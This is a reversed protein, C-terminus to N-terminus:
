DISPKQIRLEVDTATTGPNGLSDQNLSSPTLADVVISVWLLHKGKGM